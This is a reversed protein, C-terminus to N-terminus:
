DVMFVAKNHHEATRKFISTKLSSKLSTKISALGFPVASVASSKPRAAHRRLRASKPKAELQDSLRITNLSTEEACGSGDMLRIASDKTSSADNPFLAFCPTFCLQDLSNTSVQSFQTEWDSPLRLSAEDREFAGAFDSKIGVSAATQSHLAHPQYEIIGPLKNCSASTFRLADECNSQNFDKSCHEACDLLKPTSQKIRDNLQHCLSEFEVLQGLFNFNPSISPRKEKVFRYADDTTLALYHMIYAIVLTPSRSIGALCHVLVCSQSTRVEDLFRFAEQFYPLLRDTHSDNVPIRLFNVDPVFPSRPSSTSVNLIHTIGNKKIVDESLADHQSGLFLFPLIHTPEGSTSSIPLCPMSMSISSWTEGCSGREWTKDSTAQSCQWLQQKHSTQCDSFNDHVLAFNFRQLGIAKPRKLSGGGFGPGRLPSGASSEKSFGDASCCPLPKSVVDSVNLTGDCPMSFPRGAGILLSEANLCCESM